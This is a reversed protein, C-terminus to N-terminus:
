ERVLVYDDADRGRFYQPDQEKPPFMGQALESVRKSVYDHPHRTSIERAGVVKAKGELGEVIAYTFLGNGLTKDELAKQDWRSATYAIINAHYAAGDLKQNYANGSHCTDVFLLRRGQAKEIANQITYWPVTTRTVLGAAGIAADTPLFRYEAGENVGHGAIFLVVTDTESASKLLDLADSINAATPQADADAGNILLRREIEAHGPGLRKEIAAAFARADTSPLALDCSKSGDGCQPPLNKYDNVGIAVLYLTGRKDLDGDGTHTM